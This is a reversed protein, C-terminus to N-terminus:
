AAKQIKLFVAVDRLVRLGMIASVLAAREEDTGSHDNSLQLRRKHIESEAEQVLYVM